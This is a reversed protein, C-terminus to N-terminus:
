RHRTAIPGGLDQRLSGQGGPPEAHDSHGDVVVTLPKGKDGVQFLLIETPKGAYLNRAQMVTNVAEHYVEGASFTLRGKGEVDVGFEGSLVYVFVDGTHLHRLGVWGPPLKLRLVHGQKGPIGFLDESLLNTTQSRGSPREGQATALAPTAALTALALALCRHFSRPRHFM